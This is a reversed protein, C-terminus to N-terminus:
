RLCEEIGDVAAKADAILRLKWDTDLSGGGAYRGAECREFVSRLADLQEGLSRRGNSEGSEALARLKGEADGSTWAAAATRSGILRVGLYERLAALVAAAVESGATDIDIAQVSKKWHSLASGARWRPANGYHRRLRMGLLGLYAVPPLLLVAVALPVPGLARLWSATGDEMPILAAPDVYNHAIGQETSEVELQRPEIGRGEADDATVVRAAEVRLPVPESRAIRYADAKPDFYPLEVAPIETVSHHKARLTQTFHWASGRNEGAGIERPVKFDRTLAVQGDLSPLKSVAVIGPGEIKLSLTIPEGVAVATPKAEAHIEFQGIWGNFGAPRGESPLELVAVSPRNSPIALTEMVPRGGFAGSFVGGGFFDDFLSRGRSQGPRPSSFTVTAAPLAITGATRPILLKEFRVVIYERGDLTGREKRAITNRDGLRFELLDDTGQARLAADSPLDRLEFRRDDLLPMTFSFDQVERGIYWEASLKLAQGVYARSESLSLRFKFDDNEQPPQVSLSIPQTRAAQGNATVKLSPIQVTGARRASLRYNINYGRRVQQAMKGNVISVSTSNSSGGGAETVSFDAELPGIDVPDPQDSGRIQIQLLFQQGVFVRQSQVAAQAELPADQAVTAAPLAVLGAALAATRVRGGM